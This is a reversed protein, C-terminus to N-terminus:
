VAGDEGGELQKEQDHSEPQSEVETGSPGHDVDDEADDLDSDSLYDYDDIVTQRDAPFPANM